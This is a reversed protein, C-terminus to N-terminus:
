LFGMESRMADLHQIMKILQQPTAVVEHTTHVKTQKSLGFTREAVNFIAVSHQLTLACVHKDVAQRKRVM